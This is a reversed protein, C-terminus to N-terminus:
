SAWSEGRVIRSVASPNIGLREAMERQTLGTGSRIWDVDAQTLKVDRRNRRQEIPTAWRCNGPEYNGEPDIRDLSTGAPREGMDALFNSMGHEGLWRDSITVGRGGYLHYKPANSNLCRQRMSTWSAHTPTDYLARGADDSMTRATVLPDGYQRQRWLHKACYGFGRLLSECSDITCVSRPM